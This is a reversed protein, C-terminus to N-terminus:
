KKKEQMREPIEILVSVLNDDLLYSIRLKQFGSRATVPPREIRPEIELGNVYMKIDLTGKEQSILTTDQEQLRQLRFSRSEFHDANTCGRTPCTNVIDYTSVIYGTRVYWAAVRKHLRHNGFSVLLRTDMFCDGYPGLNRVADKMGYEYCCRFSCYLSLPSIPRKIKCHSCWQKRDYEVFDM